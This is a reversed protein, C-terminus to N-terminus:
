RRISVRASARKERVGVGHVLVAQGAACINIAANVDRDHATHCEQCTWSRDSLTMDQKTWGCVHCRKSSPFFRDIRTVDRGYWTAKYELQRVFESWGCDSIAKALHHNGLMNKVALDEVFIAQNERIIQTTAKQLTDQRCNAIKAHVQAVKLRARKRRHSGKQKKSLERQATALQQQYKYTYKPNSITEGTSLTALRNIGLDIGVQQAVEAMPVIELDVKLSVFYKGDTTQSLTISTPEVPVPCSWHVKLKGMKALFLRRNQGDWRFARRTYTASQKHHKSKYTPYQTRGEWFNIFATQLHRLTQQLPISSVENLWLKDPEQKLQTMEKDTQAYGVREQDNFWADTRRRLAWNYIYRVCGFQQSLMETQEPTPYCRFKFAKQM